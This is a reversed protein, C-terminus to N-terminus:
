RGPKKKSVVRGLAREFEKGSEDVGIERAAAIFLASQEEQAENARTKKESRSAGKIKTAGKRAPPEQPM